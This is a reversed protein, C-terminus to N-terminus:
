YYAKIKIKTVNKPLDNLNILICGDDYQLDGSYKIKMEMGNGDPQEGDFYEELEKPIEIGANKCAKYAEVKNLYDETPEVIGKVSIHMSM